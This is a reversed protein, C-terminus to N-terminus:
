PVNDLLEAATRQGERGCHVELKAMTRSRRIPVKGAAGLLAVQAPTWSRRDARSAMKKATYTRVNEVLVEIGKASDSAAVV